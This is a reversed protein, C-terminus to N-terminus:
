ITFGRVKGNRMKHIGIATITGIITAIVAAVIAIVITYYLANLIRDNELLKKYWDLRFDMGNLWQNQIM